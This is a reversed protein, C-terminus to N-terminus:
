CVKILLLKNFDYNKLDAGATLEIPLDLYVRLGDTDSSSEPAYCIYVGEPLIDEKYELIHMSFLERFYSEDAIKLACPKTGLTSLCEENLRALHLGKLSKERYFEYRPKDIFQRIFELNSYEELYTFLSKSVETMKKDTQKKEQLLSNIATINM